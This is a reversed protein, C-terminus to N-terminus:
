PGRLAAVFERWERGTLGSEARAAELDGERGALVGRLVGLEGASFAHANMRYDMVAEYTLPVWAALIHHLIVDSYERIEYQAHSDSRLGVLHILNHLDVTWYWETYTALPLVVRALERAVGARNLDRPAGEADVNLLERYLAFGAASHGTIAGQVDEAEDVPLADGRGQRNATSQEAVVALDPEYTDEPLISYRASVENTSSMRHRIWQRMVFIPAKIHLKLRAMEFPSTHRHRLLYRILGRDTSVRQTGLGYSVRAAQVIAADGGMYDVARIFGQDLVPIQQHLLAEIGPAVPRRTSERHAQMEDLAAQQEPTLQTM